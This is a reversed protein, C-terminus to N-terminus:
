FGIRVHSKKEQSQNSQSTLWLARLFAPYPLIADTRPLTIKFDNSEWTVTKLDCGTIKAEYVDRYPKERNTYAFQLRGDKFDLIRIQPLITRLEGGIRFIVVVSENDKM